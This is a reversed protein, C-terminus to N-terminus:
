YIIEKTIDQISNCGTMIMAEVLEFQIKETLYRVGETGGGIAALAYPRGILAADAGLALVKLVDVGTRIGGDIFIKMRGGVAEVIEPLVEVTAPTHDLVRGGHNSIVIGAAGAELCKLAGKVTMIGKMIFPLSTSKIIEQLEEVPKPSVPMGARALQILGAADIDMAIATVHNQEAIRIRGLLKELEWPKVTPIGVGCNDAIVKVPDLFWEEKAGDGTFGLTGALKCGEIIATSFTLDTLNGGYNMPLGGIPAAFVPMAFSKGFLEVATDTPQAHYITDMNLKIEDLKEVNRIFSAGSGKGGVGPVEGKCVKGNCHACIRCKFGEIKKANQLM